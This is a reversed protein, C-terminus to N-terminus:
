RSQDCYGGPVHSTTSRSRIWRYGVATCSGAVVASFWPQCAIVVGILAVTPLSMLLMANITKARDALIALLVTLTEPQGSTSNPHSAGFANM